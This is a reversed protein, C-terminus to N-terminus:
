SSLVDSASYFGAGASLQIGHGALDFVTRNENNGGYKRRLKLIENTVHCAEGRRLGAERLLGEFRETVMSVPVEPNWGYGGQETVIVDRGLKECLPGLLKRIRHITFRMVNEADATREGDAVLRILEDHSM